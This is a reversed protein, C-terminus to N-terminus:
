KCPSKRPTTLIRDLDKEDQYSWDECSTRRYAHGDFRYTRHTSEFASDHASLDLDPYGNSFTKLTKFVQVTGVNLITKFSSGSQELVLFQCNGTPSCSCSDRSLALFVPQGPPKSETEEIEFRPQCQKDHSQMALFIKAAATLSGPSKHVVSEVTTACVLQNSAVLLIGVILSMRALLNPHASWSHANCLLRRMSNLGRGLYWGTLMPWNLRFGPARESIAFSTRGSSSSRRADLHPHDSYVGAIVEDISVSAFVRSSQPV